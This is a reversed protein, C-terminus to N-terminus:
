EEDDDLVFFVEYNFKINNKETDSLLKEPYTKSCYDWIGDEDRKHFRVFAKGDNDVILVMAGISGMLKNKLGANIMYFSEGLRELDNKLLDLAGKKINEFESDNQVNTTKLLQFRFSRGLELLEGYSLMTFETEEAKKTRKEKFLIGM